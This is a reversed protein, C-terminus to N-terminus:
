IILLRRYKGIIFGDCRQMFSLEEFLSSIIYRISGLCFLHYGPDYSDIELVVM